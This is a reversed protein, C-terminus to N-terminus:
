LRSRAGVGIRKRPQPSYEYRANHIPVATTMGEQLRAFTPSTNPKSQSVATTVTMRPLAMTVTGSRSFEWTPALYPIGNGTKTRAEKPV